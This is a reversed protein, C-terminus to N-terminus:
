DVPTQILMKKCPSSMSLVDEIKEAEKGSARKSKRSTIPSDTCRKADRQEQQRKQHDRKLEELGGTCKPCKYVDSLDEAKLGLCKLDHYACPCFDCCVLIGGKRGCVECYNKNGDEDCSMGDDNEAEAGPPTFFDVANQTPRWLGTNFLKWGATDSPLLALDDDNYYDKGEKELASSQGESSFSSLPEKPFLAVDLDKGSLDDKPDRPRVLQVILFFREGISSVRLTNTGQKVQDLKVAPAVLSKKDLPALSVTVLAEQSDDLVVTLQSNSRWRAPRLATQQNLLANQLPIEFIRVVCSVTHAPSKPDTHWGEPLDFSIDDIASPNLCDRMVLTEVVTDSPLIAIRGERGQYCSSFDAVGKQLATVVEDIDAPKIKLGVLRQQGELANSPQARVVKLRSSDKTTMLVRKIENWFPLVLGVILHHEVTRKKYSCSLNSCGREETDKHGCHKEYFTHLKTWQKKADELTDEDCSVYIDRLKDKGILNEAFRSWWHTNVHHM